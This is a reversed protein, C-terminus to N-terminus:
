KKQYSGRFFFNLISRYTQITKGLVIAGVVFLLWNVPFVFFMAVSKFTVQVLYVELTCEAIPSILCIYSKKKDDIYRDMKKALLIIFASFSFISVHIVCQFLFMKHFVFMCAYECVWIITSALVLSLLIFTNAREVFRDIRENMLRLLGGLLMVGFYFYVKFFSFGELEIFFSDKTYMIAYLFAYCIVFLSLCAITGKANGYHIVLYFVVYYIIIAWVFWYRNLVDYFITRANLPVQDTLVNFLIGTILVFFTVPLIRLLRKRIWATFDIKIDALCFGSLAFFIANGHGGGLALFYYPYIDRCHSNLILLCALFRLCTIYNKKQVFVDTCM